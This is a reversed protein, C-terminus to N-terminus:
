DSKELSFLGGCAVASLGVVCSLGLLFPEETALKPISKGSLYAMLIPAGVLYAAAEKIWKM